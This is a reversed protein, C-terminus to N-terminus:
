QRVTGLVAELRQLDTDPDCAYARLFVRLGNHVSRTIQDADPLKDPRHLAQNRPGSLILGWFDQAALDPEPATLRGAKDQAAMFGTLADLVMDPGAAQYAQGIQPFRQAEGIILRAISLFEPAMVTQAYRTAFVHLQAVMDGDPTNEIATRMADGPGKMMAVFLDDKGDFYQYLTPKSLGAAQAIADMTAGGFGADAFVMQAARLIRQEKDQRNQARRSMQNM